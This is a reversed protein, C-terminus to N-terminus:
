LIPINFEFKLNIMAHSGSSIKGKNVALNYTVVTQKKVSIHDSDVTAECRYQGAMDKKINFLVQFSKTTLSISPQISFIPGDGCIM